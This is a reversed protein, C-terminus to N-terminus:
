PYIHDTTYVTAGMVLVQVSTLAGTDTHQTPAVTLLM